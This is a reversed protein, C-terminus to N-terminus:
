SLPEGEEKEIVKTSARWVPMTIGGLGARACVSQVLERWYPYTNLTGNLEAFCDFDVDSLDTTDKLRYFACFHAEIELDPFAPDLRQELPSELTLRYGLDVVLGKKSDGVIFSHKMQQSIGFESPPELNLHTDLKLSSLRIEDLEVVRAVKGAASVNTRKAANVAKSM